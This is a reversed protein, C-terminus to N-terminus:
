DFYPFLSCIVFINNKSSRYYITLFHFSPNPGEGEHNLFYTKELLVYHILYVTLINSWNILLPLRFM